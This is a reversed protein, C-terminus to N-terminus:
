NLEDPWRARWCDVTTILAAVQMVTANFCVMLESM